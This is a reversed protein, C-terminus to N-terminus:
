LQAYLIHASWLYIYQTDVGTGSLTHSTNSTIKYSRVPLINSLNLMTTINEVSPIAWEAMYLKKFFKKKCTSSVLTLFAMSCIM